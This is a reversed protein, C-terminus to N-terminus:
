NQTKNGSYETTLVMCLLALLLIRMMNSDESAAHDSVDSPSSHPPATPPAAQVPPALDCCIHHLQPQILWSYNEQWNSFVDFFLTSFIVSPPTRVLDNEVCKFFFLIFLITNLICNLDKWAMKLSHKKLKKQHTGGLIKKKFTSFFM